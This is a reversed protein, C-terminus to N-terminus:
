AATPISYEHDVRNSDPTMQEPKLEVIQVCRPSKASERPLDGLAGTAKVRQERLAEVAELWRAEEVVDCEEFFRQVNSSFDAFDASREAIDHLVLRYGERFEYYAAM